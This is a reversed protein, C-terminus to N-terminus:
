RGRHQQRYIRDFAQRQDAGDYQHQDDLQEIRADFGDDIPEHQLRLNPRAERVRDLRRQLDRLPEDDQGARFTGDILTGTVVTGFGSVTFVRDIPLRAPGVASRPRMGDLAAAAEVLHLCLLDAGWPPHQEDAGM